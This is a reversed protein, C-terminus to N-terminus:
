QEEAIFTISVGTDGSYTITTSPDWIYPTTDSIPEGQDMNFSWLISDVGGRSLTLTATYPKSDCTIRIAINKVTRGAKGEILTESADSSATSFYYPKNM